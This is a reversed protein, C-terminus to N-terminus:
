KDLRTIPHLNGIWQGPNDYKHAKTPVEEIEKKKENKRIVTDETPNAVSKNKRPM